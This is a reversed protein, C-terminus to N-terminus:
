EKVAGKIDRGADKVADGADEGADRIGENSRTDLADKVGDKQNNSKQDCAPLALLAAVLLLSGHLKMNM